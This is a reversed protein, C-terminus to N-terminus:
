AKEGDSVGRLKESTWQIIYYLMPVSVVSVVTAVVMGGFVTTGIAKRSEAGAGSAILLPLVGLIFSFATMLVARFRLRAAAVAADFITKGEERQVKAFEVILISTKASLGILLVIGIQTYVNNDIGRIMLAAVAGLLATPVALCVSIPISWSEYQAALVLYVLVISFLFIISTGGSARDEQYSLETWEFGMSEPLKERGMQRLLDMAQGSTFGPASAGNIKAATYINFHSVTPPGFREEVSLLSGLSVMDGSSSRVELKTIDEPSSRFKAEAQLTVKFIRKFLTFDNVYASGLAASLTNFVEQLAVGMSKVQERDVKVFIEPVNARFGTFMRDLGSQANGDAIFEDAIRQLSLPDLSGSRDQLQLAFGGAMGLGPLSPPAFAVAVAEQIGYLRANIQRLIASQHLEATGRESWPEFTLFISAKNSARSSDLLSYGGIALVHTVGEVQEIQASARDLVEQTRELSAADPLQINAIAWGEDEQPVFGTPLKAFGYGALVLVGIFAVLGVAAVRLFRKVFFIYGTTTTDLGFNFARFWIPPKKGSPPRLLVGCLAPSMTLANISSFVTAISITVAFQRFLQGTIGPIFVTPVFVALLVLTTAIVPGTVEQMAKLAAEKPDTIGDAMHRSVNEVVVIADDVVIGIVLVLGFLTLQNISFGLAAMVAFTGILSVPITLAPILTARFNQLFVYVTLVVLILTIFLTEVVESISANIVDTSDYTVAYELGEPFREKLEELKSKIGDAVYIANAGPLQYIGMAATPVGNLRCSLDYSESGLEVRAVDKVKTLQGEEGTRVIIEEFEAPDSLRGQTTVTYQFAQGDPAPPRGITGAAVEINQERIAAVVDNTSLERSKLKDPDIWVRMSYDGVGFVMVDGVGDVRALEDRMYLSIYNSLFVDDYEGDPSFLAVMLTIEPSKKKVKIGQRKVEEPLRPTAVSVRNQVLVNSMDLDAGVDFTVSLVMNGDSTNTSTMYAMNEVGNVEKELPTAVTEAVVEANAGPYVTSVEITPPTIEPYRAIPLAVLAVGGILVIVISIVSAFIPRHIFIKSFM